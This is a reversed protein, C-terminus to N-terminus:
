SPCSGVEEGFFLHGTGTRSSQPDRQQLSLSSVKGFIIQMRIKGAPPAGSKRPILVFEEEKMDGEFYPELPLLFKGIFDKSGFDKDYCEIVLQEDM